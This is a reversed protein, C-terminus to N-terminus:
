NKYIPDPNCIWISKFRQIYARIYIIHGGKEGGGKGQFFMNKLRK